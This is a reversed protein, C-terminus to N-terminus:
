KLSDVLVSGPLSFLFHLLCSTPFAKIWQFLLSPQSTVLMICCQSMKIMQGWMLKTGFVTSYTSYNQKKKISMVWWVEWWVEWEKLQALWKLAGVIEMKKEFILCLVNEPMCSKLWHSTNLGEDKQGIQPYHQSAYRGIGRPGEVELTLLKRNRGAAGWGPDRNSCIWQWSVHICHM